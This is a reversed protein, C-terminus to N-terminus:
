LKVGFLAAFTKRGAKYDPKGPNRPQGTDWRQQAIGLLRRTAPGGIGDPHGSRNVLGRPGYGRRLLAAQLTKVHGGRVWSSSSGTVRSLDVLKMTLVIEKGWDGVPAPRPKPKPVRVGGLVQQIREATLTAAADTSLEVHGHGDHPNSGGYDRWGADPHAGSWIKRRFIILQIGLEASHLRMAEFAAWAWDPWVGTGDPNNYPRTGLDAARGEAHLSWGSGLTKCNYIGLNAAGHAGYAGLWWSQLARGGQTPGGTCGNAPEYGRYIGM